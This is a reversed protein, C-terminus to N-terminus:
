EFQDLSPIVKDDFKESCSLIVSVGLTICLAVDYQQLPNPLLDGQNLKLQISRHDGLAAQADSAAAASPDFTALGVFGPFFLALLPLLTM